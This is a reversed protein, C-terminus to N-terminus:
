GFQKLNLQRKLHTEHYNKLYYELLFTDFPTFIEIVIM